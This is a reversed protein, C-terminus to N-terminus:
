CFFANILSLSYFNFLFSTNISNPTSYLSSLTTTTTTSTFVDNKIFKECQKCCSCKDAGNYFYCQKCVCHCENVIEKEDDYYENEEEDEDEDEEETEEEKKFGKNLSGYAASKKNEISANVKDDYFVLINASSMSDKNMSAFYKVLDKKITNEDQKITALIDDTEVNDVSHFLFISASFPM